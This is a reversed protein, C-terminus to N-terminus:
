DSSPSLWHRACGRFGCNYSPNTLLDTFVYWVAGFMCIGVGSLPIGVLISGCTLLMTVVGGGCLSLLLGGGELSPVQLFFVGLFGFVGLMCVYFM